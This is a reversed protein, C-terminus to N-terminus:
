KQKKYGNCVGGKLVSVPKVNYVSCQTVSKMKNSCSNCVLNENKVPSLPSKEKDWKEELSM